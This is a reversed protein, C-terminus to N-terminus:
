GRREAAARVLDPVRAVKDNAEALVRELLADFAELHWAFRKDPRNLVLRKGGEGVLLVAQREELIAAELADWPIRTITKKRSSFEIGEPGARLGLGRVTHGVYLPRGLFLAVLMGLAILGPVGAGEGRLGAPFCAALISALLAGFSISLFYAGPRTLSYRYDDAGGAESSVWRTFEYRLYAFAAAGVIAGSPLATGLITGTKAEPMGINLVLGCVLAASGLWLICSVVDAVRKM